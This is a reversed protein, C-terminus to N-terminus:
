SEKIQQLLNFLDPLGEEQIIKGDAFHYFNICTIRVAKGTPPIGMFHATHTASLTFRVAVAKDEAIMEDVSWQVNPLGSRMMNLIMMYGELGHLPEPSIPAYFIADESIIEKGIEIDATNIFEVFRQMVQKNLGEKNM